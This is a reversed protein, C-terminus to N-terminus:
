ARESQLRDLIESKLEGYAYGSKNFNYSTPNYHRDCVADEFTELLTSNSVNHIAFTKENEKKPEEM